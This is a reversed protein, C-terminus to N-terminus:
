SRDSQGETHRKNEKINKYWIYIDRERESSNYTIKFIYKLVCIRNAATNIQKIGM